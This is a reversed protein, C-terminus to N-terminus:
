FEYGVATRLIYHPRRAKEGLAKRVSVLTVHFTSDMVTTSPWVRKILDEKAVTRGHNEVLALLLEFPKASLPIVKEDRALIRTSPDLRFSNFEYLNKSAM